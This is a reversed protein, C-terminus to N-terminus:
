NGWMLMWELFEPDTQLEPPFYKHWIEARVNHTWSRLEKRWNEDNPYRQVMEWRARISEHVQEM